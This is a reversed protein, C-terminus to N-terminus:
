WIWISKGFDVKFAVTEMFGEQTPLLRPRLEWILNATGRIANTYGVKCENNMLYAM